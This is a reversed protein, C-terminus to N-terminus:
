RCLDSWSHVSGIPLGMLWTKVSLSLYNPLYSTMVYSDGGTADIALHYVELWEAPNTSRDYKDM